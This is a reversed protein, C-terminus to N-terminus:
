KNINGQIIEYDSINTGKPLFGSEKMERLGQVAEDKFFFYLPLQSEEDSLCVKIDILSYVHVHFVSDHDICKHSLFRGTSKERIYYFFDTDPDINNM